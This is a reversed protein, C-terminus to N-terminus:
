RQKGLSGRLHDAPRGRMMCTGHSRLMQIRMRIRCRHLCYVAKGDDFTGHILYELNKAPIEPNILKSDFGDQTRMQNLDASMCLMKIVKLVNEKKQAYYLSLDVYM